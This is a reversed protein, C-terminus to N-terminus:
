KGELPLTFIFTSGEGLQSDVWIKGGHADVIGKAIALGLGIGRRDTRNAQWYRGFIHPLQDAAIGPGTDTVSILVSDDGQRVTITIRGGAPTFKVSNGVLNSLVQLVRAHDAHLDPIGADVHASLTIGAHRALPELMELADRVLEGASLRRMELTLQGIEVSAAELLDQILRNMHAASRQITELQKRVLDPAKGPGATLELALDSGMHITNLPNRLDHAVIALMEDRARTAALADHYSRASQLAMAARRALEQTTAMDEADYIREARTLVFLISGFLAGGSLIPVAVLSRPALRAMLQRHEASVALRDLDTESIESQLYPKAERLRSVVPHDDPWDVPWQEMREKAFSQLEPVAHMAVHRLGGRGGVSVVCFDALFPIALQALQTLTTDTDFSSALVRSTEALFEAQRRTREAHERARQEEALRLTAMEAQKRDTVDRVAAVRLLAGKYRFDTGKLEVPFRSGDKRVGIAEHVQSYHAALRERVQAHTEPALFDFPNRGIVDALEYGLMAAFSPNADIIQRSDHIVIGEVTASVLRRYRAESESLASQARSQAIALSVEDVVSAIAALADPSLKSCALALMVGGVIGNDVLPHGVGAVLGHRALQAQSGPWLQPLERRWIQPEVQQVIQTVACDNVALRAARVELGAAAGGTAAPILQEGLEDFIWIGVLDVGLNRVIAACFQDLTQEITPARRTLVEGIEASLQAQTKAGLLRQEMERRRAAAGIVSAAAGLAQVEDESWHRGSACDDLGIFGWWEGAAFVPLVATSLIDQRKLLDRERMPFDDLTGIITGGASLQEQWRALGSEVLNVRQLVPNSPGSPLGQAVWEACRTAIANQEGDREANEFVYVRSAGTAQGIRALLAELSPTWDSSNLFAEAAYVVAELITDRCERPRRSSTQGVRRSPGQQRETQETM